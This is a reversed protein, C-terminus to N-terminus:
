GPHLFAFPLPIIKVAIDIIRKGSLLSVAAASGTLKRHTNAAQTRIQSCSAASVCSWGAIEECTSAISTFPVGSQPSHGTVEKGSAVPGSRVSSLNLECVGGSAAGEIRRIVEGAPPAGETGGARQGGEAAGGSARRGASRM